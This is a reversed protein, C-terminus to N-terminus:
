YNSFFFHNTLNFKNIKDFLNDDAADFSLSECSIINRSKKNKCKCIKNTNIKM